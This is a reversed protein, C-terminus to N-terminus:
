LPPYIHHKRKQLKQDELANKLFKLSVMPTTIIYHLNEEKTTLPFESYKTLYIKKTVITNPHTLENSKFTILKTNYPNSNKSEGNHNITFLRCLSIPYAKNDWLKACSGGM